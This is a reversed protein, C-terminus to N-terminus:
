RRITGNVIRTGHLLEDTRKFFRQNSRVQSATAFIFSSRDLLMWWWQGVRDAPENRNRAHQKSNPQWRHFRTQVIYAYRPMTRQHNLRLAHSYDPWRGFFATASLENKHCKKGIFFGLVVKPSHISSFFYQHLFIRKKNSSINTIDIRNSQFM